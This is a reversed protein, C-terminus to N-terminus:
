IKIKYYLFSFPALLISLIGFYKLEGNLEKLTKGSAYAYLQYGVLNRILAKPYSCLQKGYNNLFSLHGLMLGYRNKGSWRTNSVSAADNEDKHYNRIIKNIFRTKIGRADYTNFFVSQPIYIGKPIHSYDFKELERHYSKTIFMGNKDGKVKYKYRMEFISGDFEIPYLDGVVEGNEDGSLGMVSIFEDPNPTKELENVLIEFANAPYSDDSDLIIFYPTEVKKIGEFVTHFKHQNSSYYYEIVFPSHAQLDRVLSQTEDTSGDDMIIWKFAQFSQNLLSEYARELTHARNFTPTVVTIKEQIM